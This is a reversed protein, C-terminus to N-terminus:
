REELYFEWPNQFHALMEATLRFGQPDDEILNTTQSRYHCIAQYKQQVVASIDLFWPQIATEKPLTRRQAPDWDWIPYELLRPRQGVDALAAKFIQWTARHDAHPDARWPLLITSPQVLALYAQCRSVAQKFAPSTTNLPLRGDSLRWFTVDPAAVGLTALGAISEQERLARLAPAPYAISNPHSQSGDSVVLVQVPWDQARCLAIAGGCGLTEDDPHPAVVLICGQTPAELQLAQLTGTSLETWPSVM